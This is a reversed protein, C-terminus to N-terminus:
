AQSPTKGAGQQELQWLTNVDNHEYTRAFVTRNMPSSSYFYLGCPERLDLLRLKTHNDILSYQVRRLANQIAHDLSAVIVREYVFNNRSHDRNFGGLVGGMSSGSVQFTHFGAIVGDVRVLIHVYGNSTFM